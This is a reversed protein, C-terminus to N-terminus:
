RRRAKRKPKAKVPSPVHPMAAQKAALEDVHTRFELGTRTRVLNWAARRGPSSLIAELTVQLGAWDSERITGIRHQMYANEARQMFSLTQFRFRAKEVRDLSEFDDGGRLVLSCLEGNRALDDLQGTISSALNQFAAARVARTNNRIQIAVYIFSVIVGIGSATGGLQAFEQLTM